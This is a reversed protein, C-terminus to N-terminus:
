CTSEGVLLTTNATDSIAFWDGTHAPPWDDILIDDVPIKIGAAITATGKDTSVYVIGPGRNDFITSVRRPSRKLIPVAALGITLPRVPMDTPPFVSARWQGVSM